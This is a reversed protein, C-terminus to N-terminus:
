QYSALLSLVCAYKKVMGRAHEDKNKAACFAWGAIRILAGTGMILKEVKMARVGYYKRFYKLKSDIYVLRMKISMTKSTQGGFHIIEAEPTFVVRYGADRIRKCLDFEESYVFFRTDFAGVKDIVSRPILMCSGMVVDVERESDHDWDFMQTRFRSKRLFFSGPFLNEFVETKINQFRHCSHQLSMDPNLLRCGLVGIAPDGKLKEVITDLAGPLVVMDENFILIFQGRAAAIGKNHSYGYGGRADNIILKVSPFEGQVMEASGDTSANDVVLIEFSIRATTRYISALCDRLLSRNNTNVISISLDPQM